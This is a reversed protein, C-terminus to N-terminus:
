GYCLRRWAEGSGCVLVMAVCSVAPWHLWLFLFHRIHNASQNCTYQRMAEREQLPAAANVGTNRLM